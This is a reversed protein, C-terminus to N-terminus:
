LPNDLHHETATFVANLVEERNDELWRRVGEAIAEFQNTATLDSFVGRSVGRAIAEMQDDATLVDFM